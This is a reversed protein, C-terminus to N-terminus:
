LASLEETLRAIESDAGNILEALQKEEDSLWTIRQSCADAKQTFIDIQALLDSRNDKTAQIKELVERQQELAKAKKKEAMKIDRILVRKKQEKRAEALRLQYQELTQEISARAEELRSLDLLAAISIDDASGRRSIEPILQSVMAATAEPGDDLADLCIGRYLNFLEEPSTYSDDVGDSGAFVAAPLRTTYFSRFHDLADPDCLSTTVNFQCNDNWPIPTSFNGEADVMVCQGDGNRIALCFDRTVIVLILTCGYAHETSQGNLYRQRYKEAVQGVEAEAFPNCDADEAVRIKWGSLIDRYLQFIAQDRTDENQIPEPDFLFDKVAEVAVECAFQAGLHSRTFNDSGHGDSVVIVSARDDEYTASYDQCPKQSSIHSFGISTRAFSAYNKM